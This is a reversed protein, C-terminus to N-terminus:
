TIKIDHTEHCTISLFYCEHELIISNILCNKLSVQFARCAEFKIEKEVQKIFKIFCSCVHQSYSLNPLWNIPNKTSIANALLLPESFGTCVQLRTLAKVLLPKCSEACDQWIM